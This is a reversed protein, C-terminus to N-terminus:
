RPKPLPKEDKDLTTCTKPQVPYGHTFNYIEAKQSYSVQGILLDADYKELFSLEFATESTSVFYKAARWDDDYVVGSLSGDASYGYHQTFNCGKRSNSCFKRYHTGPVTGFIETYVTVRSPRDGRVLLKSDCKKCKNNKSILIIGIPNTAGATNLPLSQIETALEIDSAFGAVEYLFKLNDVATQLDSASLPKSLDKCVFDSLIAWYQPIDEPLYSVAFLLRRVTKPDQIEKPFIDM